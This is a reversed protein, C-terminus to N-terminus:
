ILFRDIKDILTNLQTFRDKVHLYINAYDLCEVTREVRNKKKSYIEGVLQYVTKLDDAASTSRNTLDDARPNFGLDRIQDNDLVLQPNLCTYHNWEALFWDEVERKAVIITTNEPLPYTIRRGNRITGNQLENELKEIHRQPYLDRIGIIEEYGQAFLSAADQLIQTKVGEDGMCDFILATHKPNTPQSSTKPFVAKTPKGKGQFQQLEIQINKIGAIEILLSNIFFQETQGEVYFAIKKM